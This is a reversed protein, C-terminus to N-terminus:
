FLYHSVFSFSQTHIRLIRVHVGVVKLATGNASAFWMGKKLIPKTTNVNWSQLHLTEHMETEKGYDGPVKEGVFIGRPTHLDTQLDPNTDAVTLEDEKLTKRSWERMTKVVKVPLSGFRMTIAM